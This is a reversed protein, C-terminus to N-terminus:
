RAALIDRARPCFDRDATGAGFSCQWEVFSDLASLQERKRRARGQLPGARELAALSADILRRLRWAVRAARAAQASGNWTCLYEIWSLYSWVMRVVAGSQDGSSSAGGSHAATLAATRTVPLGAAHYRRALDLDEFYLFFRPDFGGVREFESRAVLLAAGSPWWPSSRLVFRRARPLERPRLPGIVQRLLERPWHEGTSGGSMGNEISPAVLGLRAGSLLANLAPQDVATVRVDPNLFLVHSGRAARAGRNCARGFGQNHDNVLLSVGGLRGCLAPTADTSANDVVIVEAEPLCSRVSRWCGELVDASNYTVIVVSLEM